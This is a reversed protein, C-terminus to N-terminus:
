CATTFSGEPASNIPVLLFASLFFLFKNLKM